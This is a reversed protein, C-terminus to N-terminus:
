RPGKGRQSVSEAHADLWADVDQKRFRLARGFKIARPGQGLWRRQYLAATSLGCMRAVQAITLMPEQSAEPSPFASRKM